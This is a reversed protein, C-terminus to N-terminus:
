TLRVQGEPELSDDEIGDAVNSNWHPLNPSEIDIPSSLEALVPDKIPKRSTTYIVVLTFM